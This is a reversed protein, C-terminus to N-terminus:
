HKKIKLNQFVWYDATVSFSLMTSGMIKLLMLHTDIFVILFFIPSQIM